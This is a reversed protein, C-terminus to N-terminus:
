DLYSFLAIVFVPLIQSGGSGFDRLNQKEVLPLILKIKKVFFLMLSLSLSLSLSFLTLCSNTVVFAFASACNDHFFCRLMSINAKRSICISFLISITYGM